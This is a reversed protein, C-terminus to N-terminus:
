KAQDIGSWKLTLAVNLTNIAPHRTGRYREQSRPSWSDIRERDWFAVLNAGTIWVTHEPDWWLLHLVNHVRFGWIRQLQKLRFSVLHDLDELELEELRKQAQACTGSKEVEHNWYNEVVLIENWTKRELQSLRELVAPVGLVDICHWGWPDVQQM